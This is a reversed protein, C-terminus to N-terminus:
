ELGLAKRHQAQERKYQDRRQKGLGATGVVLAIQDLDVPSTAAWRGDLHEVMSLVEGTRTDTVARMRRLVRFVTARSRGTGEVLQAATMPQQRLQWFVEAASKNLGGGYRFADHSALCLFESVMDEIQTEFDSVRGTGM